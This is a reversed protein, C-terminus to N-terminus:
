EEDEGEEEMKDEEWEEQGTEGKQSPMWQVLVSSSVHPKQMLEILQSFPHAAHWKRHSIDYYITSCRLKADQFAAYEKLAYSVTDM